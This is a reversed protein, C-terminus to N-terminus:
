RRRAPTTCVADTTFLVQREVLHNLGSRNGSGATNSATSWSRRTTRAPDERSLESKELLESSEGAHLRELPGNRLVYAVIANAEDRLTFGGLFFQEVAKRFAEYGDSM